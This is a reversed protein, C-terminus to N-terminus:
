GNPFNKLVHVAPRHRGANKRINPYQSEMCQRWGHGLPFRRTVEYWHLDSDIEPDKRGDVQNQENCKSLDCRDVPVVQHTQHRKPKLKQTMGEALSHFDISLGFRVRAM